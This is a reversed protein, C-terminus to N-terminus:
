DEEGYREDLKRQRREELKRYGTQVVVFCVLFPIMFGICDMINVQTHKGRMMGVFVMLAVLAGCVLATKRHRKKGGFAAAQTVGLMRSRVALYIPSGVLIPYEPICDTANMELFALKVVISICCGFLILSFLEAYIKRYTEKVREDMM